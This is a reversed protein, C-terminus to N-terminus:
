RTRGLRDVVVLLVARINVPTSLSSRDSLCHPLSAVGSADAQGRHGGRRVVALGVEAHHISAPSSRDSIHDARIFSHEAYALQAVVHVTPVEELYNAEDGPIGFCSSLQRWRRLCHDRGARWLGSWARCRGQPLSKPQEHCPPAGAATALLRLLGPGVPSHRRSGRWPERVTRPM